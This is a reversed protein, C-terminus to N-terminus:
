LNALQYRDNVLRGGDFTLIRDCYMLATDRHSVLLITRSGRWRALAQIVESETQLDLASTAEDLILLRPNRYLARAIGIRQRQGGSLRSGREGVQTYIGESKQTLLSELGAIKLVASLHELNLDEDAVGLAVNAALSADLLTISQPVYGVGRLVGWERDNTQIEDIVKDGTKPILLGVLVDIFTSKGSGSPGVVGIFEDEGIVTSVDDLSNSTANKYRYTVRKLQITKWKSVATPLRPEYESEDTLIRCTEELLPRNFRVSQITSSIRNISPMVRFATAAFVALLSLIRTSDTDRLSLVLVLLSFSIISLSELWLRPIAQVVVYRRILYSKRSLAKALREVFVETDGLIKLEKVSSFSEQLTQQIEGSLENAAISWRDIRRSSLRFMVYAGSLLFSLTLFTGLPEIVFLFSFMVLAILGDTSFVLLPEIGGNLVSSANNIDRILLASNNEIHFEYRKALYRRFIDSQIRVGTRMSFGRQVWTSLITFATKFLFVFVFVAVVFPLQGASAFRDPLSVGFLQRVGSPEELLVSVLPLFLGLSFLELVAGALIMVAIGLLQSRERRTLLNWTLVM